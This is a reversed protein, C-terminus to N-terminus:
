DEQKLLSLLGVATSYIKDELDKELDGLNELENRIKYLSEVTERSVHETIRGILAESSNVKVANLLDGFLLDSNTNIGFWEAEELLRNPQKESVWIITLGLIEKIQTEDLDLLKNNLEEEKTERLYDLEKIEDKDSDYYFIDKFINGSHANRHKQYEQSLITYSNNLSIADRGLTPLSCKCGLLQAKKTGRYQIYLDKELLIPVFYSHNLFIFQNKKRVFKTTDEIIVKENFKVDGISKIIMRVFLTKNKPFFLLKVEKSLKRVKEKDTIAFTPIIIEGISGDKILPLLDIDEKYFFRISNSKIRIPIRLTKKYKDPIPGNM